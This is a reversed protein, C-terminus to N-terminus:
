SNLESSPWWRIMESESPSTGVSETPQERESYTSAENRDREIVKHLENAAAADVDPVEAPHTTILGLVLYKSVKDCARNPGDWILKWM